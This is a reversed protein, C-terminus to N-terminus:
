AEGLYTATGNTVQWRGKPPDSTYGRLRQNWDLEFARHSNCCHLLDTMDVRHSKREYEGDPLWPWPVWTPPPDVAGPVLADDDITKGDNNCIGDLTWTWGRCFLPHTKEYVHYAPTQKLPGHIEGRRTKYCKGVEFLPAPQDALLIRLDSHWSPTANAPQNVQNGSGIWQHPFPLSLSRVECPVRGKPILGVPVLVPLNHWTEIDGDTTKYPRESTIANVAAEQATRVMRNAAMLENSLKVAADHEANAMAKEREIEKRLGAIIELQNANKNELEMMQNCLDRWVLLDSM